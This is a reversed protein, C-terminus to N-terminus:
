SGFKLSELITRRVRSIRVVGDFTSNTARM